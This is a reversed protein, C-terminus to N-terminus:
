ISAPSLPANPPSQRDSPRYAPTEIARSLVPAIVQTPMGLAARAAAVQRQAAALQGRRKNFLTFAVSKRERIRERTFPRAPVVARGNVMVAVTHTKNAEGIAMRAFDYVRQAERLAAEACALARLAVEQLTPSALKPAASHLPVGRMGAIERLMRDTIAGDTFLAAERLVAPSFIQVM